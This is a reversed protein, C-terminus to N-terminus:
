QGEENVEHLVRQMGLSVTEFGVSRYFMQAAENRALVNLSVLQVKQEALWGWMHSVLAAGHGRRRETELIGIATIFAVKPYRAAKHESLDLIRLANIGVIEGQHELLFVTCDRIIGLLYRDDLAAESGSEPANESAINRLLDLIVPQDEERSVRIEQSSM